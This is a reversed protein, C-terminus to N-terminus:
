VFLPVYELVSEKNVDLLISSSTYFHQVSLQSYLINIISRYIYFSYTIAFSLNAIHSCNDVILPSSLHLFTLHRSIKPVSLYAM